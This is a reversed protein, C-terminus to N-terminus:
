GQARILGGLLAGLPAVITLAIQYWVPQRGRMQMASFISFLLMLAALAGAHTLPARSGIAAAIYGGLLAATFSYGLNTIVYMLQPSGDDGMWGPAMQKIVVTCLIVVAVMAAYGAIVALISRVITPV